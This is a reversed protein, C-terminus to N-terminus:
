LSLHMKFSEKILTFFLARVLTDASVHLSQKPHYHHSERAVRRRVSMESISALLIWSLNPAEWVTRQKELVSARLGLTRWALLQRFRQPVM